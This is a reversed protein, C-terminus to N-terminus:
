SDEELEKIVSERANMLEYYDKSAGRRGEKRGYNCLVYIGM